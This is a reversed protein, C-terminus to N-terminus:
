QPGAEQEKRIVVDVRRALRRRAEESLEEPLTQFRSDALGLATVDRGYGSRQMANAVATARAMSLSWANDYTEGEVAGPDTHGRVTVQNGVNALVGSLTFLGRAADETIAASGEEFLLHNPLAVRIHNATQNLRAQELVPDETMKDELVASLYSLNVARDRFTSGINFQTSPASFSQERTPNLRQSLTQVLKEWRDVKLSSMSFLLVFFTLMLSVLDAFTLMWAPTGGEEEEDEDEDEEAM